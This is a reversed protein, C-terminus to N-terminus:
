VSIHPLWSLAYLTIAIALGLEETVGRLVVCGMEDVDSVKHPSKKV